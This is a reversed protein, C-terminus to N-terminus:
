SQFKPLKPENELYKGLYLTNLELRTKHSLYLPHTNVNLIKLVMDIYVHEYITKYIKVYLFIKRTYIITDHEESYTQYKTNQLGFLSFGVSPLDQFFLSEPCVIILHM